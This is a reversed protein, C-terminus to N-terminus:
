CCITIEDDACNVQSKSMGATFASVHHTVKENASCHQGLLKREKKYSISTVLIFQIFFIGKCRRRTRNMESRSNKSATGDAMEDFSYPGIVANKNGM